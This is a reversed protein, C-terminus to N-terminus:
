PQLYYRKTYHVGLELKFKGSFLILTPKQLSSMSTTLSGICDHFSLQTVLLSGQVSSQFCLLLELALALLQLLALHM